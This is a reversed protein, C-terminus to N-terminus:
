TNKMAKPKQHSIKRKKNKTKPTKDKSALSAQASAKRSKFTKTVTTPDVPDPMSSLSELSEEDFQKVRRTGDSQKLSNSSAAHGSDFPIHKKVHDKNQNEICIDRNENGDAPKPVNGQTETANSSNSEFPKPFSMYETKGSTNQDQPLLPTDPQSTVNNTFDRFGSQYVSNFNMGPLINPINPFAHMNFYNMPPPLFSFPAFVNPTTPPPPANNGRETRQQSDKPLHEQQQLMIDNLMQKLRQVNNQQWTLQTYSQNLQHMLLQVQPAGLNSPMVGYSSTLMSQLIYSLT